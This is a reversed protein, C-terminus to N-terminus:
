RGGASSTGPEMQLGTENTKQSEQPMHCGVSGVQPPSHTARNRRWSGACSVFLDAATQSSAPELPTESFLVFLFPPKPKEWTGPQQPKVV